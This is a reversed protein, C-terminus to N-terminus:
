QGADIKKSLFLYVPFHDSFGGTYNNGAFTRYPYGSFRGEDQKLETPAYVSASNPLYFYGKQDKNLLAPSIMIQDFIQWIDQYALTGLGKRHMEFMPNFFSDWDMDDAKGRAKLVKKISDNNPDDNFDGMIIIKASPNNKLLSDSIARVQAAAKLRNPESRKEGGSRSPWHNVIVSLTDGEFLGSVVLQDRTPREELELRYSRHALVEFLAPRYLLAVDIGREDPSDYHIIQYNKPKLLQTQCLDELVQRNEVECVGLFAPGDVGLDNGLRSIVSALNELKKHYKETNWHRDGDPLFEEDQIDPDQITDFLNEVNYFAVCAARYRVEQAQIDQAILISIILPIYINKM